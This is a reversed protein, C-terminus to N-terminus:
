IVPATRRLMWDVLRFLRPASVLRPAVERALICRITYHVVSGDLWENAGLWKFPRPIVGLFWRLKPIGPWAPSYRKSGCHCISVHGPRMDAFAAREHDRTFIQHCAACRYFDHHPTDKAHFHRTGESTLLPGTPPEPPPTTPPESMVRLAPADPLRDVERLNYQM